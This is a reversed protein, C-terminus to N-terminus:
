VAQSTAHNSLGPSFIEVRRHPREPSSVIDRYKTTGPISLLRSPNKTNIDVKCNENSYENSIAQTLEAVKSIGSKLDYDPVSILIFAGNGSIGALCHDTLGFDSIIKNRTSICNLLEENTSNLTRASSKSPPDIDIILYRILLIDQDTCFEGKRLIKLNNKAHSPRRGLAVPNVTIYSSCNYVRSLQSILCDSRTFWGAVTTPYASRIVHNTRDVMSSFIRVEACADKYFIIDNFFEEVLSTNIQNM